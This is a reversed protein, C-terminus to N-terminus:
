PCRRSVRAANFLHQGITAGPGTSKIISTFKTHNGAAFYAQTPPRRVSAGTLRFPQCPAYLPRPSPPRPPNHVAIKDAVSRLIPHGPASGMTWQPGARPCTLPQAAPLVSRGHVRHTTPQSFSRPPPSAAPLLHCVFHSAPLDLPGANM